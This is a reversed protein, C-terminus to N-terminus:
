HLMLMKMNKLLMDYEDMDEQYSDDEGGDGNADPLINYQFSKAAMFAFVREEDAGHAAHYRPSRHLERPQDVVALLSGLRGSLCGALRLKGVEKGSAAM